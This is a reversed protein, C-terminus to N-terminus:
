EDEDSDVPSGTLSAAAEEHPVVVDLRRQSLNQWISACTNWFSEPWEGLKLKRGAGVIRILGGLVDDGLKSRKANKINNMDSFGRECDVSTMPLVLAIEMLKYVESYDLKVQKGYTKFWTPFALLEDDADTSFHVQLRQKVFTKYFGFQVRAKDAKITAGHRKVQGGIRRSTRVVGHHAILMEMKDSGFAEMATNNAYFGVYARPSLIQCAGVLDSNPFRVRLSGVLMAAHKRMETHMKKSSLAYLMGETKSVEPYLKRLTVFDATRDSHTYGDAPGPMTTTLRVQDVRKLGGNILTLETVRVTPSGKADDMIYWTNLREATEKVEMEVSHWM